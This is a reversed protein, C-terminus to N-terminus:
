KEKIFQLYPLPTFGLSRYLEIARQNDSEAELRLRAAGLTDAFAFFERGLGKGRAEQRLYIEEIWIVTGGAEQSYSKALMAYGVPTDGDCLFYGELYPSSSTM